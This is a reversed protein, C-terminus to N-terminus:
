VFRFNIDRLHTNKWGNIWWLRVMRGYGIKLSTHANFEDRCTTIQRWLDVGDPEKM